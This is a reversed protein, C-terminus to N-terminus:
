PVSCGPSQIFLPRIGMFGKEVDLTQAIGPECQLNHETKNTTRVFTNEYTSRDIDDVVNGCKGEVDVKNKLLVCGMQLVRVNKLEEGDDTNHSQEFQRSV